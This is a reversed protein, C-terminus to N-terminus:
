FVMVTLGIKLLSSAHKQWPWRRGQLPPFQDQQKGITHHLCNRRVPLPEPQLAREVNDPRMLLFRRSGDEVRQELGHAVERPLLKM